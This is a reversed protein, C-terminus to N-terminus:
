YQAVMRWPMRHRNSFYKKVKAKLQRETMKDDTYVDALKRSLPARRLFEKYFEHKAIGPGILLLEDAHSVKDIIQNYFRKLELERRNESKKESMISRAMWGRSGTGGTSRIKPEVESYITESQISDGELTVIEAKKHDIWIGVYTPAKEAVTHVNKHPMLNVRRRM